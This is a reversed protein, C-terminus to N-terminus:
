RFARVQIEQAPKTMSIKTRPAVSVHSGECLSTDGTDSHLERPYGMRGSLQYSYKPHAKSLCQLSPEQVAAERLNQMRAVVFVRIEM